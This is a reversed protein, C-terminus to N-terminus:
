AIEFELSVNFKDLFFKKLDELKILDIGSLFVKYGSVKKIEINPYPMAEELFEIVEIPTKGLPKILYKDQVVKQNRLELLQNSPSSPNDFESQFFEEALVLCTGCGMGLMYNSKWDEIRCTSAQNLDDRLTERSIGFCRCILNSQYSHVEYNFYQDLAVKAAFNLKFGLDQKEILLKLLDAVSSSQELAMNIVSCAIEVKDSKLNHYKFTFSECEELINQHWLFQIKTGEFIIVSSKESGIENFKHCLQM